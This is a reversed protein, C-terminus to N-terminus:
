QLRRRAIYYVGFAIILNLTLSEFVIGWESFSQPMKQDFSGKLTDNEATLEDLQRKLSFMPQEGSKYEAWNVSTIIAFGILVAIISYLIPKLSM